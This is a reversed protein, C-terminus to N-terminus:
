SRSGDGRRGRLLWSAMWATVVFGILWSLWLGAAIPVADERLQDLIVVIGVGAPVFLLQLHRLLLEPAQVLSSGPAPRRLRLVVLFLVMGVVPGPFDVDLLRVAVEGVLQCLLLALVGILM